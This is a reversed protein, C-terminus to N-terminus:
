LAWRLQGKWSRSCTGGESAFILRACGQLDNQPGGPPQPRHPWGAEGQLCYGRWRSGGDGPDRLGDRRATDGVNGSLGAGRYRGSYLAARVSYRESQNSKQLTPCCSGRVPYLGPLATPLMPLPADSRPPARGCSTAPGASYAGAPAGALFCLTARAAWWGLYPAAHAELRVLARSFAASGARTKPAGKRLWRVPVTGAVFAPWNPLAEAWEVYRLLNRLIARQDKSLRASANMSEYAERRHSRVESTLDLM